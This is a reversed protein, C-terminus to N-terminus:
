TKVLTEIKFDYENESDRKYSERSIEKWNSLDIQPYFVDGDIECEVRTLVLKNVINKSEKFVYGGGILVIEEETSNDKNWQSAVEIAQNLNSVVELGEQPELWSSIVINKRNPLPRGISEFTKRGMVIAKNQTYASFHQLDKKLKWPLENNVGIVFNNSLAVLHSIIM